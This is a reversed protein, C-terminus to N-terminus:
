VLKARAFQLDTRGFCDRQRLGQREANVVTREISKVVHGTCEAHVALAIEIREVHATM